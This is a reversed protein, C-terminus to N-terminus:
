NDQKFPAILRRVEDYDRDQIAEFGDYGVDLGQLIAKHPANDARLALFARRLKEVSDAPLTKSVAFLYSPLPPSRHLERLGSPAFAAFITDKLIGADFDRNLVAKAINDYHNLFQYRGLEELKVGAGVVVARQLLAKKDGLAFSRGRLDRMGAIPSDTRVAVVLHFTSKGHTLPSVLPQVGYKARANIYAVPTLYAIQTQGLGLEDVASGLNASARFSVKLGTSRSLYDALPSMRQVMGAPVDMAVAGLHIEGAPQAVVPRILCLTACCGLIFRYWMSKM